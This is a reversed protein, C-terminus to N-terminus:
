SGAAILRLAFAEIATLGRAVPNSEGTAADFAALQGGRVYLLVQRDPAWALPLPDPSAAVETATGTELDIVVTARRGGRDPDVSEVVVARGDASFASGSTATWTTELLAEAGLAPDPVLVSREGTARDIIVYDCSSPGDCEYGIALDRGIAVLRGTTIPTAGDPTVQFVAGPVAVVLGGAPDATLPASPLEISVGLPSGDLGIQEVMGVKDDFLQPDSRWIVGPESATRLQYALGLEVEVPAGGAPILTSALDEDWSPLLVADADVFLTAPGFPQSATVRTELLGTRLDLTLLRRGGGLAVLEVQMGVLSEAVAVQEVTMEPTTDPPPETGAVQPNAEVGGAQNEVVPDVPAIPEAVSRRPALSTTSSAVAPTSSVDGSAGSRGLVWGLALAVIAVIVPAWIRTPERGVGHSVMAESRWATSGRDPDGDATSPPREWPTGGGNSTLEIEIRNPASSEGM